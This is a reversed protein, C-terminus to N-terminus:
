KRQTLVSDGRRVERSSKFVFAGLVRYWWSIFIYLSAMLTQLVVFVLNDYCVFVILIRQVQWSFIDSFRVTFKYFEFSFSLFLFLIINLGFPKLFSSYHIQILNVCLSPQSALVKHLCFKSCLHTLLQDITLCFLIEIVSCTFIIQKMLCIYYNKHNNRVTTNLM